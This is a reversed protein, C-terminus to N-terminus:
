GVPIGRMMATTVFQMASVDHATQKATAVLDLNEAPLFPEIANLVTGSQDRYSSIQLKVPSILPGPPGRQPPLQDDLSVVL